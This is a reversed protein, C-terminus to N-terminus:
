MVDAFGRKVRNFFLFAMGYSILALGGAKALAIWDPWQGLVVITRTAEIYFSLPNLEMVRGFSEPVADIPYFIPSLFFLATSLFTAVYVTDRIFVGLASVFWVLAVLQISLVITLPIMALLSSALGGGWIAVFVLLVLLSLLFHFLSSFVSVWALADLPFVVKKVFNAHRLILTPSSTLQESFYMYIVIGSFLLAAFNEDVGNSQPWRAQFIVGFVFMYVLLLLIPTILSWLMGLWSGKYRALVERKSLGFIM